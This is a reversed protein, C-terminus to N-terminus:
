DSLEKVSYNQKEPFNPGASKWINVVAEVYRASDQNMLSSNDHYDDDAPNFAGSIIKLEGNMIGFGEGVVKKGKCSEGFAKRYIIGHVKGPEYSWAAQLDKFAKTDTQMIVVYGSKCHTDNATRWDTAGNRSYIIIGGYQQESGRYTDSKCSIHLTRVTFSPGCGHAPCVVFSTRDRAPRVNALGGDIGDDEVDAM